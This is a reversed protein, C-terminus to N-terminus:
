NFFSFFLFCFLTKLNRTLAKKLLFFFTKGEGVKKRSVHRWDFTDYKNERHKKKKLIKGDHKEFNINEWLKILNQKQAQIQITKKKEIIEWQSGIQNKFQNKTEPDKNDELIDEKTTDVAVLIRCAIEEVAKWNSNEPTLRRSKQDEKTEPHTSGM